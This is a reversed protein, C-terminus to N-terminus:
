ISGIEIEIEICGFRKAFFNYFAAAAIGTVFGLISYIFPLYTVVIVGADIKEPTYLVIILISAIHMFSLIFFFFASVKGFQIPSVRHIKQKM